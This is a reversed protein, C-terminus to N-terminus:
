YLRPHYPSLVIVVKHNHAKLESVFKEFIYRVENSHKYNSMSYSVYSQAGREVEELSKKAYALNYVRSGDKRIKDVFSPTEDEARIKSQNISDYFKIAIANLGSTPVIKSQSVDKSIGLKYLSSSYETELSKWRSQGSNTNFIWPDAGLFVYTPNFKKSSLEWIAVIDEVSAGSVSLNLLNLHTGSSSAQMLRSSGIAVAEPETNEYKIRNKIFIRENINSSYIVGHSALEKAMAEERAFDIKSTLYGIFIFILGGLLSATLVFKRDFRGETRFPQEIFKWSLYSIALVLTLLFLICLQDLDKSWHRAFALVPQHWLYASYSILGLGM